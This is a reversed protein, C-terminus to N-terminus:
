QKILLAARLHLGVFTCRREIFLPMHRIRSYKKGTVCEAIWGFGNVCPAFPNSGLKLYVTDVFTTNCASGVSSSNEVNLVSSFLGITGPSNWWTTTSHEEPHKEMITWFHRGSPFLSVISLAIVTNVTNPGYQFAALSITSVIVFCVFSFGLFFCADIVSPVWFCLHHCCVILM